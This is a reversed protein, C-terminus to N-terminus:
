EPGDGAALFKTEDNDEPRGSFREEWCKGAEFDNKVQVIVTPDQELPLAPVNVNVGSGRVAISARGPLGAFLDIERIGDRTGLVDRYQFGRDIVTRWCGDAPCDPGPPITWQGILAPEGAVTDYLCISYTTFLGPDGFDRLAIFNGRLWDYELRDDIGFGGSRRILLSSRGAEISRRCRELPV